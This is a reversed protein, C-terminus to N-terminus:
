QLLENVRREEDESLPLGLTWKAGLVEDNGEFHQFFDQALDQWPGDPPSHYFNVSYANSSKIESVWDAGDFVWGGSNRPEVTKVQEAYMLIRTFEAKTLQIKRSMDIHIPGVVSANSLKAILFREDAKAVARFTYHGYHSSNATFRLTVDGANMNQNFLIPEKLGTLSYSVARATGHGGFNDGLALASEPFYLAGNWADYIRSQAEYKQLEYKREETAGETQTSFWHVWALFGEWNLALNTESDAVDAVHTDVHSEAWAGRGNLALGLVIVMLCRKLM